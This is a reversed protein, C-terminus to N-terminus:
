PYNICCRFRKKEMLDFLFIIAEEKNLGLQIKINIYVAAM